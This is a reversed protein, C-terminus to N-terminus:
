RTGDRRFAAPSLGVQAKFMRSFYFRNGFGLEAAITEISDHSSLLRQAALAIRWELLYSM